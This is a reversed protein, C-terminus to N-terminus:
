RHRRTRASMRGSTSLARTHRRSRPAPDSVSCLVLSAMAFDVSEDPVDMAEGALGRLDLEIGLSKAGRALTAHMRVNPEVAIVRTGRPVYRLNAGSGSGIELVVAPADGILRRKIAGYKGDMYNDMAAFFWANLRGRIPNDFTSM